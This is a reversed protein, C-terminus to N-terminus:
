NGVFDLLERDRIITVGLEKAQAYETSSEYGVLAVVFDTDLDVRDQVVAGFRAMKAELTQRSVLSNSLEDGAFVFVPKETKDYFPSTIYDGGSIPNLDDEEIIRIESMTEDVRVVEVRGKYQKKGGKIYQFVRFPLGRHLHDQRGINIWGKQLNGVVRLLQGDPDVNEFSKEKVVAAQLVELKRQVADFRNAMFAIKREFSIKQDSRETQLNEIRRLFTTAEAKAIQDLDVNQSQLLTIREQAQQYQSRLENLTEESASKIESLEASAVQRDEFAQTRQQRLTLLLSQLDDFVAILSDYSREAENLEALAANIATEAKGKLVDDRIFEDKLWPAGEAYQQGAVLARLELLDNNVERLSAVQTDVETRAQELKSALTQKNANEFFFAFTMVFFLVLAVVFLYLYVSGERQAM